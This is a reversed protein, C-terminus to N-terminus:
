EARFGLVSSDETQPSKLLRVLDVVGERAASTLATVLVSALAIREPQNDLCFGDHEELTLLLFTELLEQDSPIHDPKSELAEAAM